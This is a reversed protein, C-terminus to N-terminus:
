QRPQAQIPREVPGPPLSLHWFPPRLAHSPAQQQQQRRESPRPLGRPQVGCGRTLVAEEKERHWWRQASPAAGLTRGQRQRGPQRSGLGAAPCQPHVAQVAVIAKACLARCHLTHLPDRPIFYLMEHYIRFPKSPTRLFPPFPIPHSFSMKKLRYHGTPCFCRTVKLIPKIPVKKSGDHTCPANSGHSGDDGGGELHIHMAPASSSVPDSDGGNRRRQSAAEEPAAQLSLKAAEAIIAEAEAASATEIAEAAARFYDHDLIDQASPREQPDPRLCAKILPGLVPGAKLLKVTLAMAQRNGANGGLPEAALGGLAPDDRLM